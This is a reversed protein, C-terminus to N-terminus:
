EQAKKYTEKATTLQNAAEEMPDYEDNELGNKIRILKRKLNNHTEEEEICDIHIKKREGENIKMEAKMDKM